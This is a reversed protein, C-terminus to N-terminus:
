VIIASRLDDAAHLRPAHGGLAPVWQRYATVEAEHRDRQRHRKAFWTVGRADRLRLVASM